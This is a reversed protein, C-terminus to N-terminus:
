DHSELLLSTEGAPKVTSMPKWKAAGNWAWVRLEGTEGDLAQLRKGSHSLTLSATGYGPSTAVQRGSSLDFTWLEKAPRKHTGETGKDHMAVVLWRGSPDVSFLQYGGPRWNAARQRATVLSLTSKLQATAGGLDLETLLGKFSVFWYRDGVQEAHHFWADDDADFLKETAQRDAVQGQEDLTVTAVRGDGCLMSFRSPHSAAPLLGWCGPTQVEAVAKRQNLDVVTISTAPTANQVLVFQGNATTRVLGRYSLAQARRTPLIIEEKFGLNGTDYIELLDVREGRVGRSLYTTAVYLQDAKASLTFNGVYGLPIMGLLRGTPADFVRIRGDNIHNIAIDAVYIRETAAPSLVTSGLTEAPLEDPVPAAAQAGLAAALLGATLITTRM